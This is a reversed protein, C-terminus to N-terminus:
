GFRVSVSAGGLSSDAMVLEAEYLGVIENVIDLGIGQGSKKQDARVGRQLFKQRDDPEIGTGDDEVTIVLSPQEFASVRVKKRGYKCANDLLNGLLEMLDAEDGRFRVDANIDIDFEIHQDHYVKALSRSIKEVVPLLEISQAVTSKGMVAARQLQYQILEDIRPLQEDLTNKLQQDNQERAALLLALPTKLSHALDGLSKRYRQQSANAHQILSNINGTLGQLEVPYNGQLQEQRGDEIQKIDVAAQKLPLMGWRLLFAQVLMLIFASGGLWLALEQRFSNLDERYPQLDSAVSFTYNNPVGEYDDWAIGFHLLMKQDQATYFRQGPLMKVDFVLEDGLVSVSTWSYGNSHGEVHAFLGSEIQNFRPDPMLEDLVPLGKDDDRCASLLTYIHSLLENQLADTARKQYLADLSFGAIGLFAVLLLSASVILRNSLSWTKGM